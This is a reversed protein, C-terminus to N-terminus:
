IAASAWAYRLLQFKTALEEGPLVLDQKNLRILIDQYHRWAAIGVAHEILIHMHLRAADRVQESTLIAIQDNIEALGVRDAGM